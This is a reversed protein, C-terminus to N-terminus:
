KSGGRKENILGYINTYTFILSRFKNLAMETSYFYEEADMANDFRSLLHLKKPLSLDVMNKRLEKISVGESYEYADLVKYQIDLEGTILTTFDKDLNLDDISINKKNLFKDLDDYAKIACYVNRVGDNTFQISLFEERGNVLTQCWGGWRRWM